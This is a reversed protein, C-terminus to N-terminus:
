ACMQRKELLGFRTQPPKAISFKILVPFSLLRQCMLHTMDYHPAARLSLHEGIERSAARTFQSITPKLAFKQSLYM